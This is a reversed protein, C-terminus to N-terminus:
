WVVPFLYKRKKAFEAYQEIGFLRSEEIVMRLLIAPVLIFIFVSVTVWNFFYM